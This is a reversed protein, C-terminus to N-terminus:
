NEETFMKYTLLLEDEEIKIYEDCYFSIRKFDIYNDIVMDVRFYTDSLVNPNFATVECKVIEGNCNRETLEEFANRLDNETNRAKFTKLDEKVKNLNGVLTYEKDITLKM